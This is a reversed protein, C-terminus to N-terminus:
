DREGDNRGNWVEVGDMNLIRGCNAGYREMGNQAIEIAEERQEEELEITRVLECGKLFEVRYPM